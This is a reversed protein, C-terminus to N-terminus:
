LSGHRLVALVLWVGMVGSVVLGFLGIVPWGHVIPGAHANILLSAGVISAAVIVSICLRNAMQHVHALPQEYRSFEYRITLRGSRLRNLVESTARPAMRALRHLDQADSFLDGAIRSLTLRRHVMRAAVSQAVEAINFDPDIERGTGDLIAMTKAALAFNAPVYIRHKRALRMMEGVIETARLQRLPLGYYKSLARSVDRSVASRDLDDPAVGIALLAEAIADTDQRVVSVFLDVVNERMRDDIRGVIGFDVLAIRDGDEIFINGPHPDAHFLGHELVQMLYMRAGRKAVLKRDIGEAAETGLESLKTGRIRELTLVRHTTYPWYVLPIHVYPVAAFNKRFRDTNNGELSFDIEERTREMFERTVDVASYTRGWSTGRELLRAVDLLIEFDTEMQQAVEPRQVKVVVDEGTRLTAYHVQAISGAAFAEQDFSAFLDGIPMRLESEVVEKVHEYPLASVRDQLMELEDVFGDPLLDRRTSMAQGLKVYLGGLEELALRIERWNSPGYGEDHASTPRHRRPLVKAIGLRNVLYGLEHRTVVTGIERLRATRRRIADLRM